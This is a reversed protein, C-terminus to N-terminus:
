VVHTAEAALLTIAAVPCVALCDGCGICSEASLLPQAARGLLPPFRIAREPCVDGCSRCVVGRKALCSEGIVAVARPSPAAGRGLLLGRRTPGPTM